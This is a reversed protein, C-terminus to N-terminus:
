QPDSLNFFLMKVFRIILNLHALHLAASLNIVQGQRYFGNGPRYKGRHGPPRQHLYCGHLAGAGVM